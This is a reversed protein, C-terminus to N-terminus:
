FPWHSHFRTALRHDLGLTRGAPVLALLLLPFLDLLYEWLYLDTHFLMLWIPGILLLAGLAALRAAIGLLLGLSIALEATTLVIGFFGWHPLVLDRYFAGLPHIQTKTAADTAIQQAGDRTILTFSFFGWDVQGIGTIKALANSFWVLGIFIRLATFAAAMARYTSEEWVLTPTSAGRTTRTTNTM